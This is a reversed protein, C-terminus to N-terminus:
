IDRSKDGSDRNFLGARGGVGDSEKTTPQSGTVAAECLGFGNNSATITNKITHGNEIVDKFILEAVEPNSDFYRELFALARWAVRGYHLVGDTDYDEGFAIEDLHRMLADPEDMSKNKDWHLHQGPNHKENSVYSVHSVYRLARPFYKLLGSYMPFQKNKNM